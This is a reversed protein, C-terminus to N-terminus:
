AVPANLSRKRRAAIDSTSAYMWYQATYEVTVVAAQGECTKPAVGGKTNLRYIQKVASTTGSTQAELRLWPVDTAAPTTSDVDIKKTQTEGLGIIDFEPTSMDFFFHAGIAAGSETITGFDPENSAVECSANFLQAVAGNSAPITTASSDACSYNQTGKGLAILVLTLDSAPPTLTNAPQPTGALKCASGNDQRRFIDSALRYPAALAFPLAIAALAFTSRM